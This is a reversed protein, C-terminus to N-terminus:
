VGIVQGIFSVPTKVVCVCMSTLAQNRVHARLQQSSWTRPKSTLQEHNCGRYRRKLTLTHSLSVFFSRRM